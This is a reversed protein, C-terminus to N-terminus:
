APVIKGPNFVDKPDLDKQLKKMLALQDKDRSNGLYAQKQLGIGHEASVTSNHFRATVDYVTKEYEKYLSEQEEPTNSFVIHLNGDGMHGFVYVVKDAWQGAVEERLATVFPGIDKLEFGVDFGQLIRGGQRLIDSDERCRWIQQRDNESQSLMADVIVGDELASSLTDELPNTNDSARWVGAEVIAYVPYQETIPIPGYGDFSTTAKYYDGWMVEFSLLSAGLDVRCRGLLTQIDEFTQAGVLATHERVPKPFLRLVVTTVMGLTGESGIFLHKLDYGANNKMLTNSADIITGDALVAVLGLVNERTQGYRIVRVGGANTSVIGGLTCSDRSPIDVGLTMGIENAAANAVALTVGAEAVLVGQDPDIRLIKSFREFSVIVDGPKSTTGDVLGTLGGQPILAFGSANAFKVVEALEATDAPRVLVGCDLSQLCYGPNRAQLQEADLVHEAGVIAVLKSKLSDNM